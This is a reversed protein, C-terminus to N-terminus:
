RSTLGLSVVISCLLPTISKSGALVHEDLCLRGLDDINERPVIVYLPKPSLLQYAYLLKVKNRAQPAARHFSVIIFLVTRPWWTRHTIPYVPILCISHVVKSSEDRRWVFFSLSPLLPIRSWFGHIDEPYIFYSPSSLACGTRTEYIMEMASVENILIWHCDFAVLNTEVVQLM